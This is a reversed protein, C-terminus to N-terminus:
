VNGNESEKVFPVFGGQSCGPIPIMCHGKMEIEGSEIKISEINKYFTKSITPDLSCKDVLVHAGGRTKVTHTRTEGLFNYIKDLVAECETEDPVDVDLDMFRKHGFSRHLETKALSVLNFDIDNNLLKDTLNKIMAGAAKKSSAPNVTMYVTFCHNPLPKGNKDTYTGEPICMDLISRKVVDFEKSSIITRRLMDTGNMNYITKEDETLYKRRAGLMVCYSEGVGLHKLVSDCFVKLKEEDKIFEYCNM